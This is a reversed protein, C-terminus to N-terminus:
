FCVFLPIVNGKNEDVYGGALSSGMALGLRRIEEMGRTIM